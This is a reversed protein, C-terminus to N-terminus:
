KVQERQIPLSIKDLHVVIGSTDPFEIDDTSNNQIAIDTISGATSSIDGHYLCLDGPSSLNSVFELDIPQLSAGMGGLVNVNTSSDDNCPLKAAIHGSSIQYPSSDYIPIYSDVPLSKGALVITQSDSVNYYSKSTNSLATIPSSNLQNESKFNLFNIDSVRGYYLGVSGNSIGQDSYQSYYDTGNVILDNHSGSNILSIDYLSGPVYEINTKIGPWLPDAAVFGESVNYFIAYITNNLINIGAYKYNQPDM